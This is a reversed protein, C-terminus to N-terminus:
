GDEDGIAALNCAADDARRPAEAYAGDGDMRHDIRAEGEHAFGVLGDADARGQRALAIEVYLANELRRAVARDLRDV